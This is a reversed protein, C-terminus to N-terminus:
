LIHTMMVLTHVILNKFDKIDVSTPSKLFIQHLDWHEYCKKGQFLLCFLLSIDLLIRLIEKSVILYLTLIYHM